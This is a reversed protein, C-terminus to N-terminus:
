EYGEARMARWLCRRDGRGQCLEHLVTWELDGVQRLLEAIAATYFHCGTGDDKARYGLSDAMECRITGESVHLDAQLWRRGLRASARLALSTGARGPAAAIMARSGAALRKAAYRAARRGADAYVLAADPRRGVLHFVALAEEDSVEGGSKAQERYRDVQAAVTASLGLRKSALEDELAGLGDDQPTDINQVAELISLPLLAPVM